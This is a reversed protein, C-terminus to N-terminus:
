PLAQFQRQIDQPFVVAQDHPFEIAQPATYFVQHIDDAVQLLAAHM